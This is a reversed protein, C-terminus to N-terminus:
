APASTAADSESDVSDGPAVLCRCGPHAPPHAQGTPFAAGKPTPELANDDCDPCRGEATPIWQLLTEDPVADYVGRAFAVALADGLLDALSQSKWERYRAGIREVVLTQTEGGLDAADDIAVAVRERLPLVVLGTLEVVVPEPLPEQTAEGGGASRGAVYATALAEKMVRGWRELQAEPAALVEESSPRGKVRRVADLVENQEDQATRKARKTLPALLPALSSERAALWADIGVPGRSRAAARGRPARAPKSPAPPPEPPRPAAVEGAPADVEGAGDDLAGAPAPEDEVVEREKRLRAFLSDVDPMERSSRAGAETPAGPPPPSAADPPAVELRGAERPETEPPEPAPPEVEVREAEPPEPAPLEPESPEPAPLEAEPPEPASPESPAAVPEESPAAEGEDPAPGAGIAAAPAGEAGDLLALEAPSLQPSPHGAQVRAEAQALAETAELFTRKVVRYAELLRDRGSRLEELQAQLLGRRRGLDALVRERLAKAEEVMERGTTRADDLVADCERDVRLKQEEAYRESGARIETAREEADRVLEAATADAEQTRTALLQEADERMRRADDQAEKVTRAAREEAKRRIDEAAERASRLLRATEEGLADLLQQEDLQTPARLREELADVTTLLEQERASAATLDAAVKRLFSRVESESLGRFASPFSRNAVEDPTLRPATSGLLKRREGENMVSFGRTPVSRPRGGALPWANPEHYQIARAAPEVRAVTM